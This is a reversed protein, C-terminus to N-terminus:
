RSRPARERHERPAQAPTRVTRPADRDYVHLQPLREGRAAMADLREGAREMVRTAVSPPVGEEQLTASLVDLLQRRTSGAPEHHRHEPVPEISNRRQDQLHIALRDRDAPSPVHGTTQLGRVAAELWAARRFEESGELHLQKWDKAQALDVMGRAVDPSDLATALQRGKDVFAVRHPEGAFRYEDGRLVFREALSAQLAMRRRRAAEEDDERVPTRTADASPQRTQEERDPQVAGSRAKSSRIQEAAKEGVLPALDDLAVGKLERQLRDQPGYFRLDVTVGEDGRKRAFTTREFGQDRRAAEEITNAQQEM